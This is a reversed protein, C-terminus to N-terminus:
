PREPLAKRLFKPLFKATDFRNEKRQILRHINAKHRYVSMAALVSMFVVLEAPLRFIVSFVPLLVSAAVSALSVFGTSFFVVAWLVIVAGVLWIFRDIMVALGILVGLSTAIGKGGKFQLFITWNHGAVAAAACLCLFLTFSVPGAGPYFVKALFIASVGKAIDLLLVIIGIRKGLIRGVNTAGLNGSGFQRVDIGRLCRGFLYGTPISGLLYCIIFGASLLFLHM